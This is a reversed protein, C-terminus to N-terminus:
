LEDMLEKIRNKQKGIVSRYQEIEAASDKEYKEGIKNKENEMNELCKTYYERM